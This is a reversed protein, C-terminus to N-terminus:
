DTTVPKNHYLMYKATEHYARTMQEMRAAVDPYRELVNDRPKKSDLRHLHRYSGDANTEFYFEDGILGIRVPTNQIIKFAYREGDFRPDLLNRGLTTNVYRHGALAALTAFVDTESAVTDIRRGQPILGPNYIIFPVRNSTLDLQVDARSAHEAMGPLGHDGFFAFVTNDAYGAEQALRMFEGISHDMFRYANFEEVSHFGARELESPSPHLLEFGANDEPITYPRHNGSTQVVAVFPKQQQRFVKDAERFLDLDSIGWVDVVPASYSGEEYLRLDPINNTLLGRINGWSVSGGLFYFKDYGAFSNFLTHQDVIRPNRTSTGNTEVDPIGTIACFISRATGTQPTYFNPFFYGDAALRDIHPTPDLPNGSLGAKYSAFSEMIVIVVNPPTSPTQGPVHRRRFDLSAPDPSDVGLWAAMEPYYRRVQETDFTVGGGNRVTDVFYLLPNFTLQASFTHTGFFADSWRLPYASVKGYLGGLLLTTTVLGTLSRTKWNLQPAPMAACRQLLRQMGWAQLATAAFLTVGLTVVPYTEWVMRLSIDLNKLFRLAGADLRTQLYAYHGFDVMYFSLAVMGALALYGSWFLRAARWRFPSLWPLWALLFLPLLILLTLRLDFKLGLYLATLLEGAPLPDGAADFYLWFGLRLLSFALLYLVTALALFRPLRPIKHM